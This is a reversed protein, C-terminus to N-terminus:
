KKGCCNKYKKGSGCPCIENRGIKHNTPFQIIKGTPKEYIKFDSYKLLKRDLEEVKKDFDPHDMSMGEKLMVLSERTDIYTSVLPEEFRAGEIFPDIQNDNLDRAVRNVCEEVIPLFSKDGYDAMLNIAEVSDISMYQQIGQRVREDKVGLVALISLWVSTDKLNDCNQKHKKYVPEFAIKGMKGLANAAVSFLVIEYDDGILSLLDIMPTIAKETKLEGLIECTHIVGWELDNDYLEDETSYKCFTILKQTLFDTLKNKDPYNRLEELKERPIKEKSIKSFLRELKSDNM